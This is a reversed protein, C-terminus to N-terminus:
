LFINKSESEYEQVFLNSCKNVGFELIYMIVLATCVKKMLKMSKEDMRDIQADM